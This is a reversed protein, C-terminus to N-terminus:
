IEKTLIPRPSFHKTLHSCYPPNNSGGSSGPCFLIPNASFSNLYEVEERQRKSKQKKVCFFLIKKM